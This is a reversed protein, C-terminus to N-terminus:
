ANPQMGPPLSPQSMQPQPLVVRLTRGPPQLLDVPNMAQNMDCLQWFQEPDGLIRATIRDLRDGATVTVEALLTQQANLPLFRRRKYAVTRGDSTTFQATELNYYRSNHEFM